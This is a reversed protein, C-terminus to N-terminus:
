RILFHRFSSVGHLRDQLCSLSIQKLHIKSPCAAHWATASFMIELHFCSHISHFLLTTKFPVQSGLTAIPIGFHYGM